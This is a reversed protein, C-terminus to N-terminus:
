MFSPFIWEKKLLPEPHLLIKNNSAMQRSSDRETLSRAKARLIIGKNVGSRNSKQFSSFLLREILVSSTPHTRGPLDTM